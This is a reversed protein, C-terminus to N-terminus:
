PAGGAVGRADLAGPLGQGASWPQAATLALGEVPGRAVVSALSPRYLELDVEHTLAAQVQAWSCERELPDLAPGPPPTVARAGAALARRGLDDADRAVTAPDSALEAVLRPRAGGRVRLQVPLCGDSLASLVAGVLSAPSPFTFGVASRATALPRLRLTASTVLGLRGSAGLVLALLDPGVAARPGPQTQFLRGDPLVLEVRTCLPELRGGEIAHLGAWPGELFEGVSLARCAPTLPGLGLGDAQLRLELAELAVGAGVDVTLSRADPRSTARLAARSLQVDRFLAAGSAALVHLVDALDHASAPSVVLGDPGDVCYRGLAHRLDANTM